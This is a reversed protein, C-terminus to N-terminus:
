ILAGTARATVTTGLDIIQNGRAASTKTGVYIEVTINGKVGRKAAEARADTEAIRRATEIAENYDEIVVGESQGSVTYDSVGGGTTNPHILVTSTVSINAVIAGVANAVGANEPIVCHTGLAKAVDPLFIHTPAGISILSASTKFSNSFYTNDRDCNRMDWSTEIVNMLQESIGDRAFEPNSDCLLIRVINTYLKKKIKNYVNNCFNNLTEENVVIGGNEEDTDYYMSDPAYKILSRLAIKAALVSAETNYECFDGKIHMIDTPTLGCRIIIGEDELRSVNLTYVDRGMLEAAESLIVPKDRIIDCFKYEEASYGVKNKIDKVLTFFEYIPHTHAKGTEYLALLEDYINDWKQAAVCIPIVRRSELHVKGDRVRLMSDGGLGFTDIFVGSVYTRWKGISVGDEARVPEGNKVLSIDTTTGGMDVIISNKEETLKIGGLVSSAPGCLITEVPRLKSFEESMLSGDSRVIVIPANINRMALSKKISDTFERIVPVLKSNLLTSSGRQISNLKSFLEHGCVIPFDYEKIFKDRIAKECVAGNNMAFIEVIGLGDADSLWERTNEYIADTDPMDIIKGDFSSNNEIYYIEDPNSLGYKAGNKEVVNKDVGVFMLKARGGKNEVCANTALTTSLSVAEIKLEGDDLIESGKLSDILKDLASTIGITLDERTTLSKSASIIKHEDFDYLVADTYTGGTDIGIGLKM